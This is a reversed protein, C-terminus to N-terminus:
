MESLSALEWSRRAEEIDVVSVGVAESSDEVAVEGEESSECRGGVTSFGSSM